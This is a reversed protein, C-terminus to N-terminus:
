PAAIAQGSSRSNKWSSMGDSAAHSHTSPATATPPTPDHPATSSLSRIAARRRPKPAHAPVNQDEAPTVGARSEGGFQRPVHEQDRRLGVIHIVAEHVPQAAGAAFRHVAEVQHHM